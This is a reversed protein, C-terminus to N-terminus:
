WDAFRRQRGSERISMFVNMGSSAMPRLATYKAYASQWDIPQSAFLQTGLDIAVTDLYEAAACGATDYPISV